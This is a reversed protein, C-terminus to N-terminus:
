ACQISLNSRNRGSNKALYLAEDAFSYLNDMNYNKEHCITSIGISATVYKSIDSDCHEIELDEIVACLSSIWQHTKEYDDSLIIGAFEEGGLRFVFDDGRQIHNRIAHSVKVLTEDGKIHGYADNYNKFYDVDLIFFTIYHDKRKALSLLKPIMENYYRRNYLGTLQDTISKNKLEQLYTKENKRVESLKKDSAELAAENMYMTFTLISSAFVLRLWDQIMWEGHNWVGIHTYAMSFLITYFLISFYLGLRKGNTLTAFIPLFITWILSFHSDGNVFIFTLFFLMLNFTAFKAALPINKHKKLNYIAYTSVAAAILDLLAVLHHHLFLANIVAFLIFVFITVVLIINILIVRRYSTNDDFEINLALLHRLKDM